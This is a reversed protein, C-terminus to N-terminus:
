SGPCLLCLPSLGFSLISRSGFLHVFFFHPISQIFLILSIFQIFLLLTLSFFLYFILNLCVEQLASWTSTYQYGYSQAKMGMVQFRRRVLDLPYTCTQALAGAIGGAILKVPVSHLADGGPTIMSTRLSEYVSFNKGDDTRFLFFIIFSFFLSVLAVYPAVGLMGPSLGRYLGRWKGENKYIDKLVSAISHRNRGESTAHLISLRTRAIDLPFTFAVSAAGACAGAFLKEITWLERRGSIRLLFRKM